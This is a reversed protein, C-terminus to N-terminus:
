RITLLAMGAGRPAFDREIEAEWESQNREAMWAALQVQQDKPLQEIAPQIAALEM